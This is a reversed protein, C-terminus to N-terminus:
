SLVRRHINRPFNARSEWSGGAATIRAVSKRCGGNPYYYGAIM